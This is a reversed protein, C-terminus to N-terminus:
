FAMICCYTSITNQVVNKGMNFRILVNEEESNNIKRWISRQRQYNSYDMHLSNKEPYHQYYFASSIKKFHHFFGTVALVGLEAQGPSSSMVELDYCYM